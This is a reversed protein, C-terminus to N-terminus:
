REPVFDLFQLVKKYRIEWMKDWAHEGPWRESKLLNLSHSVQSLSLWYQAQELTAPIGDDDIPITEIINQASAPSSCAMREMSLALVAGTLAALLLLFILPKSNM